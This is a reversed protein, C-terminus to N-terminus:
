PLLMILPLLVTATVFLSPGSALGSNGDATTFSATTTAPSPISELETYYYGFNEARQFLYSHNYVPIFPVACDKARHGPHKYNTPGQYTPTTQRKLWEEFILDIMTHHNVFVPDNPSALVDAM